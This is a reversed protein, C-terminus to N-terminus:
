GVEVASMVRKDYDDQCAQQPRAEDAFARRDKDPEWEWSVPGDYLEAWWAGGEDGVFYNGFMTKAVWCMNNRSCPEEWELRKVKVEPQTNSLAQRLAEHTSAADTGQDTVLEGHIAIYADILDAAAEAAERLSNTHSAESRPTDEGQPSRAALLAGLTDDLFGQCRDRAEAASPWDDLQAIYLEGGPSCYNATFIGDGTWVEFRGLDGVDAFWAAGFDSAGETCEWKLAVLEDGEATPAPEALAKSLGEATFNTAKCCYHRGAHEWMKPCRCRTGEPLLSYGSPVRGPADACAVSGSPADRETRQTDTM